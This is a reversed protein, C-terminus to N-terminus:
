WGLAPPSADYVASDVAVRRYSIILISCRAQGDALARSLATRAAAFPTIVHSGALIALDKQLMLHIEVLLTLFSPHPPAKALRRRRRRRCSRFPGSRFPRSRFSRSCFAFSGRHRNVLHLIFHLTVLRLYRQKHHMVAQM